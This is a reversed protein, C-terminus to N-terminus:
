LGGYKEGELDGSFGCDCCVDDPLVAEKSLTFSVSVLQKDSEFCYLVSLTSKEETVVSPLGTMGPGGGILNQFCTLM